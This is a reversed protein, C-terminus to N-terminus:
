AQVGLQHLMSLDDRVMWHEALRGDAVRWIHVHDVEIRRGSVDIGHFEGACTASFRARAVVRDGSAILDEVITQCDAFTESLWAISGRVGEQGPRPQPGAHERHDPHILEDVVCDDGADVAALLRRALEINTNDSM